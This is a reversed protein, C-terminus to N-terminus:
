RVLVQYGILSMTNSSHFHEYSQEGQRYLYYLLEQVSLITCLRIIHMECYEAEEVVYRVHTNSFVYLVLNHIHDRLIQVIDIAVGSKGRPHGGVEETIM